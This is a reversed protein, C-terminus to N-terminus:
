FNLTLAVSPVGFSQSTRPRQDMQLKIGYKYRILEQKKELRYKGHIWDFLYSSFILTISTVFLARDTKFAPDDLWIDGLNQGRNEMRIMNAAIGAFGMTRTGLLVFGMANDKAKFHVYGPVIASYAMDMMRVDRELLQFEEFLMNEHLRPMETQDGERRHFVDFDQAMLPQVFFIMLLAVVLPVFKLWRGEM